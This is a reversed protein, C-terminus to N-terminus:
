ASIRGVGIDNSAIGPNDFPFCSMICIILMRAHTRSECAHTLSTSGEGLPRLTLSSVVSVPKWPVDVAGERARM